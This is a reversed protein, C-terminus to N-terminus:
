SGVRTPPARAPRPATPPRRIPISSLPAPKRNPFPHPKPKPTTTQTATQTTTQTTDETTTETTAEQPLAALMSEIDALPIIYPTDLLLLATRGNRGALLDGLGERTQELSTLVDEPLLNRDRTYLLHAETLSGFPGHTFTFYAERKKRSRDPDSFPVQGMAAALALLHRSLIEGLLADLDIFHRRLTAPAMRLAAAMAGFTIAHRGHRALLAGAATLIHERKQRDREDPFRQQRDFKDAEARLIRPNIHQM